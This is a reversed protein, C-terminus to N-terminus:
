TGPATVKRSANPWRLALPRTFVSEDWKLVINDLHLHAKLRFPLLYNAM